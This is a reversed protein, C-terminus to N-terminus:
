VNGAFDNTELFCSIMGRSTNYNQRYCKPRFMPVLWLGFHQQFNYEMFLLFMQEFHCFESVNSSMPTHIPHRTYPPNPHDPSMPNPPRQLNKTWHNDGGAQNNHFMSSVWTCFTVKRKGSPAGDGWARWYTPRSAQLSGLLGLDPLPCIQEFM